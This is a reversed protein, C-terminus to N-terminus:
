LYDYMRLTHTHDRAPEAEPALEEKVKDRSRLAVSTDTYAPYAVTSVDFLEVDTITRIDPGDTNFEWEEGKTIFGFSCQNIDGRGISVALDRAQSTDPLECRFRLGTDDESLTLTNATSRGLVINPDHNHLARVDDPRDLATKFAGPAIKERFGFLEESLTNFVAAYGEIVVPGEEDAAARLETAPVFRREMKDM